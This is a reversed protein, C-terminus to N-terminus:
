IKKYRLILRNGIKYFKGYNMSSSGYDTFGYNIFERSNLFEICSGTYNPPSCYTGKPTHCGFIILYFFFFIIAIFRM